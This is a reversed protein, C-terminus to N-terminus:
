VKRWDQGMEDRTWNKGSGSPWELVESGNDDLSGMLGSDPTQITEGNMEGVLDDLDANSMPAVGVSGVEVTSSTTMV